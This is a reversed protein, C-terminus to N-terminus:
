NNVMKKKGDENEKNGKIEYIHKEQNGWRMSTLPKEEQAM